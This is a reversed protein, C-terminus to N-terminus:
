CVNSKVFAHSKGLNGGVTHDLSSRHLNTKKKKFAQETQHEHSRADRYTRVIFGVLHM